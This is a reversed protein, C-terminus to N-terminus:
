KFFTELLFCIAAFWLLCRIFPTEIYFQLIEKLDTFFQNLIKMFGDM